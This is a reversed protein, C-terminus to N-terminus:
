KLLALGAMVAILMSLILQQGEAVAVAAPILAVLPPVSLDRAMAVPEVAVASEPVEVAAMLVAAVM